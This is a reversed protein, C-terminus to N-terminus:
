AGVGDDNLTIGTCFSAQMRTLEIDEPPSILDINQVGEPHLAAIIGARTVDRGLRRTIALHENLRRQAEAMVLSRDPGSLFTIGAIIAFPIIEAAQVTVHDTLPRISNGSLKTDVAALVVPEPTGDGIRSLATVLVDGPWSAGDLATQMADVLAPAADHDALVSMVLAKIDDPEPSVASADLVDSHASLAHFIYAGEPGAVSFGEPALVMRRRLDDDSEYVPAINLAPNGATIIFRGVGVAAALHDLDSGQAFAPMVARGAENVRQRMLMEQYSFLQIVIVVPDSEVTADFSPFLVQFRALNRAYITEFGLPEIIDPPPLRSLDVGAFNDSADSM